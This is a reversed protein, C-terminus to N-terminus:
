SFAIPLDEWSIDAVYQLFSKITTLETLPLFITNVTM